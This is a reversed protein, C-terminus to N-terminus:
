LTQRTFYFAIERSVGRLGLSALCRLSFPEVALIVGENVELLRYSTKSPAVAYCLHAGASLALVEQHLRSSM